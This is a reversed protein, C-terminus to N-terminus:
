TEASENENLTRSSVICEIKPQCKWRTPKQKRSVRKLKIHEYENMRRKEKRKNSVQASITECLM